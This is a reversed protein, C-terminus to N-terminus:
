VINVLDFKPLRSADLSKKLFFYIFDSAAETFGCFYKLM